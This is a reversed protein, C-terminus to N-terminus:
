RIPPTAYNGPDGGGLGQVVQIFQRPGFQIRLHQIFVPETLGTHPSLVGITQGPGLEWDRFTTLNVRVVERNYESLLWNAVSRCSFGFGLEEDEIREILPSSFQFVHPQSEPQFDNSEQVQLAIIGSGGLNYGEVYAANYLQEVTRTGDAEWIDYGEQFLHEQNSNPYGFVQVRYIRGDLSEFTRYGLSVRDINQIYDLATQRMNWTLDFEALGGLVTGTGHIDAPDVSLSPVQNLAALVINEDTTLDNPILLRLPLGPEVDSIIPDGAPQQYEEARSLMGRLQLTYEGRLNYGKTRLLGRFRGINNQGAGAIIQIETYHSIGPDTLLTVTATPVAIDMGLDVSGGIVGDLEEGGALVRFFPSQILFNTGTPGEGGGGGLGASGGLVSGGGGLTSVVAM